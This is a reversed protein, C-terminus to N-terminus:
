MGRATAGLYKERRKVLARYMQGAYCDTLFQIHPIVLWPDYTPFPVRSHLKAVSESQLIECRLTFPQNRLKSILTAM